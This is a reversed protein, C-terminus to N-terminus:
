QLRPEGGKMGRVADPPVTFGVAWGPNVVVGMGDWTSHVAWAFSVEVSFAFEPHEETVPYGRAPATFVALLGEGDDGQLVLPQVGEPHQSEAFEQDVLLAVQSEAMRQMFEVTDMEGTHAALLDQELDNLPEFEAFRTDNSM